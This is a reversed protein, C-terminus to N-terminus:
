LLANEFILAIRYAMLVPVANGIQRYAASNSGYFIFNDPFTQIRATERVTFRRHQEPHPPILPGGTGSGRGMITPAYKDWDTPRNGVRNSIKVIHKSGNHNPISDCFDLPLDSIIDKLTTYKYSIDQQYPILFPKNNIVGEYLKNVIEIPSLEFKINSDSSFNGPISLRNRFDKKSDLANDTIFDYIKNNNVLNNRIGLIIVRERNQPVGFSLANHVGYFVTYGPNSSPFFKSKETGCVELDDLIMSLVKGKEMNELGKVNELLFYPPQKVSLAKLIQEYLFNRSDNMSREVNAISFGQCPFGGILLDCDPIFKNIKEASTNLLETIDGYIAKHNLIAGINNNYTEVAALDFDNSWIIDHGAMIFGLDMGGAGSFFSVIKM